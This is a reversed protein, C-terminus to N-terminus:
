DSLPQDSDVSLFDNLIHCQKCGLTGSRETILKEATQAKVPWLPAPRRPKEFSTM